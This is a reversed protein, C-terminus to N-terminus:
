PAERQRPMRRWFECALNHDVRDSDPQLRTHSPGTICVACVPTGIEIFRVQLVLDGFCRDLWSQHAVSALRSRRRNQRRLAHRHCDWCSEHVFYSVTLLAADLAGVVACQAFSGTQCLVCLCITGSSILRWTITKLVNRLLGGVRAFTWCRDHVAYLATLLVSSLGVSSLAYRADGTTEMVVAASTATTIFSWSITRYVRM